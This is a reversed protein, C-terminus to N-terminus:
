EHLRKDLEAYAAAASEMIAQQAKNVLDESLAVGDDWTVLLQVGMTGTPVTENALKGQPATPEGGPITPLLVTLNQGTKFGKM